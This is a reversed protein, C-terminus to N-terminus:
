ASARISRLAPVKDLQPAVATVIIMKLLDGPLFPIVCAMMAAKFDMKTLWIFWVTGLVYLVINGVTMGAFASMVMGAALATALVKKMM